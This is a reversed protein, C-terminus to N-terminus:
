SAVAEKAVRALYVRQEDPTMDDYDKEVHAGTRNESAVEPTVSRPGNAKAKPAKAQPAGNTSLGGGVLETAHYHMYEGLEDLTCAKGTKEKYMARVRDAQELLGM